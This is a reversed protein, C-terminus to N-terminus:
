GPPAIIPADLEITVAKLVAIEICMANPPLNGRQGEMVTLHLQGDADYQVDVGALGYCDAVGGWYYITITRGDPAVTIHDWAHPTANVIDPEPQVSLAGDGPEAPQATGAGGIVPQDPNVVGGDHASGGATRVPSPSQDSVDTGAQCGGLLSGLLLVTPLFLLSVRQFHSM